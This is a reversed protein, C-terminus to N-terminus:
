VNDTKRGLQSAARYETPDEGAAWAKRQKRFRAPPFVPDLLGTDGSHAPKLGAAYAWRNWTLGCVNVDGPDREQPFAVRASDDESM